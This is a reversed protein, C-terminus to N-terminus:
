RITATGRALSSANNMMVYTTRPVAAMPISGVLPKLAFPAPGDDPQPEVTILEDRSVERAQQFV